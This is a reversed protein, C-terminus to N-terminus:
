LSLSIRLRLAASSASPIKLGISSYMIYIDQSWSYCSFDAEGPASKKAKIGRGFLVGGLCNLKAWVM